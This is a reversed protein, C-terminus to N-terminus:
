LLIKARAGLTIVEPVLENTLHTLEIVQKHILPLAADTLLTLLFFQFLFLFLNSKLTLM